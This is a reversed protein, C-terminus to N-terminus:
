ELWYSLKVVLARNRVALLETFYNDTYVIYLDSMPRFRWNFRSNINFNQKQTNFQLFNTFFLNRTFSIEVKAGVLLFEAGGYSEPFNYLKRYSLRLSTNLHYNPRFQLQGDLNLNNGMFRESWGIQFNGSWEHLISTEYFISWNWMNYIGEPFANNLGSLAFPVYLRVRQDTVRFRFRSADRQVINWDFQSRFEQSRLQPDTYVDITLKPGFYDIEQNVGEFFRYYAQWRFHRYGIRVTTDRFDDEHYLRPVYGMVPHYNEGVNDVGFFMSWTSTRYRLKATYAARQDELKTTSSHAFAKGVWKGNQSRYDFELGGIGHNTGAIPDLESFDQQHLMFATITSGSLVNRQVVGVTHNSTTEFLTSELQTQSSMLGVRWKDNVNGTMKMGAIIPVGSRNASGIRRSFFPRVRSNGLHSFLDSNDLFFLRREPFFIEFRNLDLVQQDVEVQSFDPNIALDLNFSSGIRLKADLGSTFKSSSEGGEFDRNGQVASYPVVSGQFKRKQPAQTFDMHGMYALSSLRLGRPVPVWSSRENQHLDNRAFNVNWQKRQTTFYFVRFPIMMELSWYGEAINQHVEARWPADWSPTVGKTGGESILGEKQVGAASISFAYGSTAGQNPDLYVIFAENETFKFDRKLSQILQTPNGKTHCVAGILIHQENYMVRVETQSASREGESPFNTKFQSVIEASEWAEEDLIGNIQIPSSSPYAKIVQKTQAWLSVAGGLLLFCLLHYRM